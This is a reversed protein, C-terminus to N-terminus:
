NRDKKGKGKGDNGGKNKGKGKGAPSGPPPPPGDVRTVQVPASCIGGFPRPKPDGTKLACVSIFVTGGSPVNQFKNAVNLGTFTISNPGGVNPPVVDLTGAKVTDGDPFNISSSVEVFYRNAGPTTFATVEFDSLDVNDDTTADDIQPPRIATVSNTLDSLPGMLDLDDPVGDGDLDQQTRFATAAAYRYTAGPTLGAIGTVAEQEGAESQASFPAPVGNYFTRTFPGGEQDVFFEANTGAIARLAVGTTEDQRWIVYQLVNQAPVQRPRRFDFRIRAVPDFRSEQFAVADAGVVSTGDKRGGVALIGGLILAGALLRGTAGSLFGRRRQGTGTPEEVTVQGDGATNQALLPGGPEAEAAVMPVFESGKASAVKMPKLLPTGANTPAPVSPKAEARKGVTSGGFDQFNFIARVKDEPSVGRINERVESHSLDADVSMVRVRGVLDRRGQGAGSVRTVIFEMGRRVGNRAGINLLATINVEDARSVATNLVTGEPLRFRDMQERARFAAKALAEELLVDVEGAFGMRPNSAGEAIAGNILVGSDVDEVVVRIRVSAQPPNQSVTAETVTGYVVAQADIGEAIQKRAIRDFPPRLDRERIQQVVQRESLVDWNLSEALQLSMQAAAQRGLLGGGVRAANNFDLVFVTTQSRQAQASPVPGLGLTYPLMLALVLFRAIWRSGPHSRFRKM